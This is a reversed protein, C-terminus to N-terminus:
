SVGFIIDIVYFKTFALDFFLINNVILQNMILNAVPSAPNSM